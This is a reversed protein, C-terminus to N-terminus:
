PHFNCQNIRSLVVVAMKNAQLNRPDLGAQLVPLASKGIEVLIDAAMARVQFNNDTLATILVPYDAKNGLKGMVKLIAQRVRAVPDHLLPKVLELIKADLSSGLPLALKELELVVELRLQDDADQLFVL